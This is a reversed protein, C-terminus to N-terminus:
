GDIGDIGVSYSIGYSAILPFFETFQMGANQGDFSYWMLLSLIFEIGTVVIGYTRMADKEIVFGEVYDLPKDMLNTIQINVM